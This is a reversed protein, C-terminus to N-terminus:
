LVGMLGCDCIGLQVRELEIAPTVRKPRPGCLGTHVTERKGPEHTVTRGGHGGAVVDVDGLCVDCSPKSLKHLVLRAVNCLSNSGCEWLCTIDHLLPNKPIQPTCPPICTRWFSAYSASLM